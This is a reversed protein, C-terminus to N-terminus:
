NREGRASLYASVAAAAVSSIIVAFGYSIFKLSPIFHIATSVAAAIIVSVTVGRDRKMAPVVIATFMGYIALGLASVASAPLVSGAAAGVFTGAAWGIYPVTALGYMYRVNVSLQTSAVGFIEDTIFASLILRHPTTFSSDLKQSLTIGMLSYRLNIVAQTLAMEILSGGAAILSIGAVQGASTLNTMSILLATIVNLGASVAAVGIGVSVAFYGLGIPVGAAIGKLFLSRKKM